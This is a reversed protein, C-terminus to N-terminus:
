WIRWTLLILSLVAPLDIKLASTFLAHGLNRYKTTKLNNQYLFKLVHSVILVSSIHQPLYYYYYYYYYVVLVVVVVVVVV